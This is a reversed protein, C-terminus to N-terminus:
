CRNRHREIIQTLGNITYIHPDDIDTKTFKFDFKSEIFYLLYAMECSTLPIATEFDEENTEYAIASPICFKENLLLLIDQQIMKLESNKDKCLVLMEVECFLM